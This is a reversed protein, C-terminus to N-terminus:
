REVWGKAMAYRVLDSRTQAGLREKIRTKHNEVTKTSICLKAAIEKNSYGMAVLRLIEIERPTLEERAGVKSEEERRHGPAALSAREVLYSQLAPDVYFEGRGIARLASILEADASRKLVFGSAGAALAKELYIAQEHMTLALIKQRPRQAKIAKIAAIGDMGPLSLDMLVLDPELQLALDVAEQGNSAEGAVQFEPTSELLLRLGKRMVVHDDALLLTTKGM